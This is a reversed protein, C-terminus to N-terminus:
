VEKRLIKSFSDMIMATMGWITFQQYQYFLTTNEVSRWKYDRGGVIRDFPFNEEFKPEYPVKYVEPVTDIFFSLPVKFVRSVEDKSFTDNYDKIVGVYPYIILKGTRFEDTPGLIEVQNDAILLEEKTERIAAEKPSEGDEIAGGPLCVDGPQDKINSSRVEFLVKHDDAGEILAICVACRVRQNDGIVELTRNDIIDKITDKNM